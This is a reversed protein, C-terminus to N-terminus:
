KAVVKYISLKVSPCCAFWIRDSKIGFSFWFILMRLDSCSLRSRLRALWGALHSNLRLPTRPAVVYIRDTRPPCPAPLPPHITLARAYHPHIDVTDPLTYIRTFKPRPYMAPLSRDIMPSIAHTHTTFLFVSYYSLHTCTHTHPSTPLVTCNRKRTPNQALRRTSTCIAPHHIILHM